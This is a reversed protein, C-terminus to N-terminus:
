CLISVMIIADWATLNWARLKIWNLHFRPNFHNPFDIDEVTIYEVSLGPLSANHKLYELDTTALRQIDTLAGM